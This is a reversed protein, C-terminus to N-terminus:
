PAACNSALSYGADHAAIASVFWIKNAEDLRAVGPCDPFYYKTGNRSAVVEGTSAKGADPTKLILDITGEQGTQYGAGYGLGFSAVAIGILIGVVLVDRPTRGLAAKCKLRIDAINM